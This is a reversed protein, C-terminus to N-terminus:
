GRILRAMADILVTHGIPKPLLVAHPHSARMSAPLLQGSYFLFPVGRGYLRAALTQTTDRGLRVDLVAASLQDDEAGNLAAALTAYPGAVDAGAERLAAELDLAILIEDEAVLIRTDQLLLPPDVHQEMM